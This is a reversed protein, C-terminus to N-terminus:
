AFKLLRDHEEKANTFQRACWACNVSGDRRYVHGYIERLQSRRVSHEFEECCAVTEILEGLYTELEPHNIVFEAREFAKKNSTVKSKEKAQM